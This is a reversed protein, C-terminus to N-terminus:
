VVVIKRGGEAALNHCSGNTEGDMKTATRSRRQQKTRRGLAAEEARIAWARLPEVGVAGLPEM